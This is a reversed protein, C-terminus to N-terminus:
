FVLGSNFAPVREQHRLQHLLGTGACYTNAERLRLHQELTFPASSRYQLADNVRLHIDVASVAARWPGTGLSAGSGPNRTLHGLLAGIAVLAADMLESADDAGMEQVLIVTAM